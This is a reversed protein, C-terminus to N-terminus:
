LREAVADFLSAGQELTQKNRAGSDKHKKPIGGFVFAIM